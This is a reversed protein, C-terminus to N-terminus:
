AALEVDLGNQAVVARYLHASDKPIRKQTAYDVYVMGFRKQYGWAWEFNDMLSWAFYGHLPVGQQIAELSAELHTRLYHVRKTDRVRGDADPGTAYAAGNETVYLRGPAYDQHLRVLLRTLGSAYVEWDMDTKDDSVHVTRPANQSEPIRDSRLVARNYYNVGLFDIPTAMDALDGERVFPLVDSKLRGAAVHDAVVDKPYGRGYLPDLYWRNFGGDFSRCADLDELSPSAPEAPVLNLTIGVEADRVNSRIVPVAQGHSLLTHHAAALAQSWDKIGPAHEGNAYGLVSICWPENHTIWRKVRDGLKQSVIDAYEVFAGVTDRSAWGGQDQLVQPLDWHYLTVVPEIRAELLGDVLRSYFDLGAPNVRGRGLPLIRPWAISFRYAKLGMWRMLEVDERWRHYHDCAVEGSTGDAIKGPTASFRDWISEGRGDEDVAGEIQYSSTAVGWVFDHPFQRM